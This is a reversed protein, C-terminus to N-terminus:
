CGLIGSIELDKTRFIVKSRTMGVMVNIRKTVPLDEPMRDPMDELMRDPMRDPMDEPMRDPIDEPMDEPMKDPLDEPMRDPVKDPMGEPMRDSMRDPMGEPMRDSMRDPTRDPMDEPMRDPVKDPMGEPMRDSMRDPMGEPMRDSMRDPTRDPMDEPMRDPRQPGATGVSSSLNWTSTWRHGSLEPPRLNLDLPAWQARFNAFLNAVLQCPPLPRPLQLQHLCPRPSVPPLPLPPPPSPPHPSCSQYFRVVRVQCTPFLGHFGFLRQYTASKKVIFDYFKMLRHPFHHSCLQGPGERFMLKGGAGWILMGEMGSPNLLPERFAHGVRETPTQHPTSPNIYTGFTLSGSKLTVQSAPSTLGSNPNSYTEHLFLVVTNPHHLTKQPINQLHRVHLNRVDLNRVNLCLRPSSM